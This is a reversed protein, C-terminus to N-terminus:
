YREEKKRNTARGGSVESADQNRKQRGWTCRSFPIIEVLIFKCILRDSRKSEPNLYASRMPEGQMKM